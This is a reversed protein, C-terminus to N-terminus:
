INSFFCQHFQAYLDMRYPKGSIKSVRKLFKAKLNLETKKQILLKPYCRACILDEFINAISHITHKHVFYNHM